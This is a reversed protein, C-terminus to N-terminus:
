KQGPAPYQRDIFCLGQSNLHGQTSQTYRIFDFYDRLGKTPDSGGIDVPVDLPEFHMQGGSGPQYKNSGFSATCNRWPLPNGGRDTFATFNVGKLDETHATIPGPVGAYQAAIQDWHVPSNEAFSEWFPHDMHITVQAPVSANPEVQIGRPHEEGDLGPTGPFESGNQCNVYNTPTSFGLMFRMTQPFGPADGADQNGSGQADGGADVGGHAAGSPGFDYPPVVATQSCAEGSSVQNGAWSATGVYLVSYANEVMFAYYGREDPTLNVNYADYNAPAPITSFGFGYTTTSDFADGNAMQTFVGIPTAEEGGGGQGLLSGGKHLDVVFPGNLQAVEPGHQSQDTPALDPDEWLTIATFVTIYADLTFNWGDVMYTDSSPDLPPFPFGYLSLTEGSASVYIANPGPDAPFCFSKLSHGKGDSITNPPTCPPTLDGKGTYLSADGDDGPSSDVCASVIAGLSMGSACVALAAVISAGVRSPTV